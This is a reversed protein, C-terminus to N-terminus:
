QCKWFYKLLCKFYPVLVQNRIDSKSHEIWYIPLTSFATPIVLYKRSLIGNSHCNIYFKFFSVRDIQLHPFAKPLFPLLALQLQGQFYFPFNSMHVFIPLLFTCPLKSLCAQKENPQTDLLLAILSSALIIYMSYLSLVSSTPQTNNHSYYFRQPYIWRECENLIITKNWRIMKSHPSFFVHGRGELFQCDVQLFTGSTQKKPNKKM